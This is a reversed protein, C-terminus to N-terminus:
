FAIDIYVSCLIPTLKTAFAKYFEIPYGDPGSAKRNKMLKIAQGIEAVSIPEELRAKDKDSITPLGLSEVFRNDQSSESTYLSSYFNKFQDNIDKLDSKMTGDAAQIETIFSAASYQRLQHSLLRGAREGHEYHSQRSKLFM